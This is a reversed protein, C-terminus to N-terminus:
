LASVLMDLPFEAIRVIDVGDYFEPTDMQVGGIM